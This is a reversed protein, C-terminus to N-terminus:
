AQAFRVIARSADAASVCVSRELTVSLDLCPNDAPTETWKHGDTLRSTKPSVPKPKSSAVHRATAMSCTSRAWIVNESASAFVERVHETKRVVDAAKALSSTNAAADVSTVVFSASAVAEEM